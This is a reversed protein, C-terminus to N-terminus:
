SQEQRRAAMRRANEAEGPFAGPDNALALLKDITAQKKIGGRAETMAQRMAGLWTEIEDLKWELLELEDERYQRDPQAETLRFARAGWTTLTSFTSDFKARADHAMIPKDTKSYIVPVGSVFHIKLPNYKSYLSM